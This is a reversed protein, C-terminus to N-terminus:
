RKECAFNRNWEKMYNQLSMGGENSTRLPLRNDRSNLIQSILQDGLAKIFFISRQLAVDYYSTIQSIGFQWYIAQKNM